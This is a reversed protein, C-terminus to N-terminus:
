FQYRVVLGEAHKRASDDGPRQEPKMMSWLEKTTSQLMAATGKTPGLFLAAIPGSEQGAQYMQQPVAIWLTSWRVVDAPLEKLSRSEASSVPVGSLWIWLMLGIVWRIQSM